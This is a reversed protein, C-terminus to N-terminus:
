EGEMKLAVAGEWWERRRMDSRIYDTVAHELIGVIPEELAGWENLRHALALHILEHIVAQATGIWDGQVTIIHPGRDMPTKM